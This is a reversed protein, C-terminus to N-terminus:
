ASWRTADDLWDAPAHVGRLEPRRALLEALRAATRDARDRAAAAREQRRGTPGTRLDKAHQEPTM